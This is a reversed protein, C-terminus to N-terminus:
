VGPGIVSTCLGQAMQDTGHQQQYSVPCTPSRHVRLAGCRFSRRGGGCGARAVRTAARCVPLSAKSIVPYLQGQSM